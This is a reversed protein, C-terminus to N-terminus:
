NQCKGGIKTRNYNVYRTVSNSQLSWTKLIEGFQSNVKTLIHVYSAESAINFSDWEILNKQSKWVSHHQQAVLCVYM